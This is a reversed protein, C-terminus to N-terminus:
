MLPYIEQYQNDHSRLILYSIHLLSLYEQVKYFEVMMYLNLSKFTILRVENFFLLKILMLDDM